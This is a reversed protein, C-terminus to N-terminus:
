GPGDEEEMPGSSPAPTSYLRDHDRCKSWRQQPLVTAMCKWLNERKYSESPGQNRGVRCVALGSKPLVIFPGSPDTTPHNTSGENTATLRGKRM